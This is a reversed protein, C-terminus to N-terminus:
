EGMTLYPRMPPTVVGLDAALQVMPALYAPSRGAEIAQETVQVLPASWPEDGLAELRARARDPAGEVQYALAVLRVYERRYDARLSAPTAAQHQIPVLVWGVLLALAVGLAMGLILALFQRM